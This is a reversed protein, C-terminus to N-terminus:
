DSAASKAQDARVLPVDVLHEALFWVQLPLKSAAFITDSTLSSQHRCLQCQLLRRTGLAWYASHGCRPCVFGNPWRWAFLAQECQAESGYRAMFDLLSISRQFQVRNKSM